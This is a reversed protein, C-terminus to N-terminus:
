VVLLFITTRFSLCVTFGHLQEPTMGYLLKVNPRSGKDIKEMLAQSANPSPDSIIM